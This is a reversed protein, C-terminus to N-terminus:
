GQSFHQYTSVLNKAAPRLYRQVFLGAVEGNGIVTFAHLSILDDDVSIILATVVHPGLSGSTGDFSDRYGRAGPNIGAMTRSLRFDSRGELALGNSGAMETLIAPLDNHLDKYYSDQVVVVCKGASRLVRGIERISSSLSRFYQLHNKYYYTESAKSTHNRLRSVFELCTSGWSTSVTPSIKPVTASGMLNRRLRDFGSDPSFGLLSPEASTAMAYDIRTCYPPSALIFSVSEDPLALKESAGARLIRKARQTESVLSPTPLMKTVEATFIARLTEPDPRLRANQFTPRKMWTPNSTRFPRFVIRLTRFRAVYFFAALDSVTDTGRSEVSLYRIDDILLKQVAGEIGRLAAVANPVLWTLLSDDPCIDSWDKRRAVLIM